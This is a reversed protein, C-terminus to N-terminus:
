GNITETMKKIRAKLWDDVEPTYFQLFLPGVSGIDEPKLSLATKASVIIEQPDKSHQALAVYPARSKPSVATARRFMQLSRDCCGFIDDITCLGICMQASARRDRAVDTDDMHCLKFKQFYKEAKDPRGAVVCDMAYQWLPVPDGEYQRMDLRLLRMSEKLDINRDNKLSHNVVIDHFVATKGTFVHMANHRRYRWEAKGPRWARIQPVVPTGQRVRALGVVSFDDPMELLRRRLEHADSLIEDCDFMVLWDADGALKAAQNRAESFSDPWEIQHVEAGLSKAVSITEDSSGTDVVVWKDYLGGISAWLAALTAQENKAISVCTIM